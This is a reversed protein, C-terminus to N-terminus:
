HVLGVKRLRVFVVETADGEALGSGPSGHTYLFSPVGIPKPGYPREINPLWNPLKPDINSIPTIEFTKGRDASTLLIIELSPDGWYTESFANQIVSVLYLSGDEDFTVSSYLVEWDPFHKQVVPLLAIGQWESGDHHWLTVSKPKKENHFATLWPNGGPDIALNGYRMDLQQGQEIFCPSKPTAPLVIKEGNANKWTKGDDKSRLYGISKGAAPEVTDYIHFGLHITGDPAIILPNGYQTYGTDVGPHVLELPDTWDSDKPKQQYMLRRPELGGRYTCHLQDNRDVVLSPYTASDGFHQVPEWQNIDFPQSSRTYQFPGHHPGFVAHIYGDSDMTIAPGSHNDVGKGILVTESWEDKEIDYTKMQIDAVRDLWAVFIKHEATIIKNSMMYATARTSGNRSLIESFQVKVKPTPKKQCFLSCIILVPMFLITSKKM